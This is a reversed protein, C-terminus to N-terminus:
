VCPASKSAQIINLDIILRHILVTPPKLGVRQTSTAATRQNPCASVSATNADVGLFPLSETSWKFGASSLGSGSTMQGAFHTAGEGEECLEGQEQAGTIESLVREQEQRISDLM